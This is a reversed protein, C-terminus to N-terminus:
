DDYEFLRIKCTLIFQQNLHKTNKVKEKVSQINSTVKVNKMCRIISYKSKACSASHKIDSKIQTKIRVKRVTEKWIYSQANKTLM